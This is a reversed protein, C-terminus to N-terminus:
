IRDAVWSINEKRVIAPVGLLLSNNKFKKTVIAGTGVISEDGIETGKLICVKQGIWVHNGIEVNESHNIRNGTYDLISHSDGTRVTIDKAFLCNRGIRISKGEIVALHTNGTVWTNHGISVQGLSDEIWIEVENLVCQEEIKVHNQNGSIFIKCNNLKCCQGIEVVNDKGKIKIITRRLFAGNLKIKNKSWLRSYHNMNIICYLLASINLLIEHRMLVEKIKKM